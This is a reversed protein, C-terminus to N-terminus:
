QVAGSSTASLSCNQVVISFISLDCPYTLVAKAVLPPSASGNGFANQCTAGDSTCSVGNVTLTTGMKSSGLNPAAASIASVTGSYPTSSGRSITLQRQAAAAASTLQVYNNFVMGFKLVAFLLLSLPPLVLAFEVASAGSQDTVINMRQRGRARLWGLGLRFLDM